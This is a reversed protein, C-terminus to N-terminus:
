THGQHIPLTSVHAHPNESELATHLKMCTALCQWPDDAKTWGLPNKASDYIDEPHNMIVAVHEDFNGKDFGYLNSLHTKLWYLDCKNLPKTKTFMLLDHALDDGIHSLHLSIPYAQ